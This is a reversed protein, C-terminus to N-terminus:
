LDIVYSTIEVLRGEAFRFVDCSAVGLTRNERDQFQATGEVIVCAEARHLKLRDYLTSVTELFKTSEECRAIVAERGVYEKKGVVNWKIEDAFYPYVEAFRWSCFAEAIQHSELSM